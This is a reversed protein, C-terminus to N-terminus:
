DRGVSGDFDKDLKKMYYELEEMEFCKLSNKLEDIVIQGDGNGDMYDFIEEIADRTIHKDHFM